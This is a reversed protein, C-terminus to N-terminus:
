YFFLIIDDPNLPLLASVVKKSLVSQANSKVKHRGVFFKCVVFPEHFGSYFFAVVVVVVDIYYNPFTVGFLFFLKISKPGM